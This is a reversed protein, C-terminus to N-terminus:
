HHLPLSRCSGPGRRARQEGQQEQDRSQEGCRGPRGGGGLAVWRRTPPAPAAASAAPAAARCGGQRRTRGGGGHGTTARGGGGNGTAPRGRGGDLARGRGRGRRRRRAGGARGVRGPAHETAGAGSEGLRQHGQASATPSKPSSRTTRTRRASATRGRQGAAVLGREWRWVPEERSLLRVHEAAVLGAHDGVGVGEGAPGVLHGNGGAVQDLVRGEPRGERVPELGGHEAHAAEPARLALEPLGVPHVGRGHAVGAAEGGVGGVLLHARAAGAM